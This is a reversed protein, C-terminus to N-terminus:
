KNSFELDLDSLTKKVAEEYISGDELRYERLKQVVFPLYIFKRDDRYEKLLANSQVIDGSNEMIIVEGARVFHEIMCTEWNTYGQPVMDAELPQFLAATKKLVTDYQLVIHNVFPHGFEHITLSQFREGEFVYNKELPGLIFIAKDKKSSTIGWGPGSWVTLSPVIEYGNFSSGYFTEIEEMFDKTPKLVELKSETLARHPALDNWISEFKSENFFKNVAYVLAQLTSLEEENKFGLEAARTKPLEYDPDLPLEPLKYMLDVLTSYDMNAALTFIEILSENNSNEPNQYIVQTIPHNPDNDSPDGLEVIYGFFEVNKMFRIEVPSEQAKASLM